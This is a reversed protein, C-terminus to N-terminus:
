RAEMMSQYAQLARRRCKHLIVLISAPTSQMEDAIAQTTDGGIYYRRLLDRCRPGVRALMRSLLLKREVERALAGDPTAVCPYEGCAFLAETAVSRRRYHRAANCIAGILYPEVTRVSAAHMIYTAFVDHVLSEADGPPIGFKRVAIKRLKPAFAVYAAEFAEPRVDHAHAMRLSEEEHRDRPNTNM